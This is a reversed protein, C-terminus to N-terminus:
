ALGQARREHLWAAYALMSVTGDANVPAGASLDARFQDLTLVAGFASDNVLAVLDGPALRELDLADSM